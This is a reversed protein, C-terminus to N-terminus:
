KTPYKERVWKVSRKVIEELVSTDIDDLRKVYLCGKSSKHKGLRAMLDELGPFGPALYFVLSTKRPSFGAVPADGEHGSEYRYHYTGFGIISPGWMYAPEGTIRQMMTVIARADDRKREDDVAAIFDDVSQNTPKTKTEAM